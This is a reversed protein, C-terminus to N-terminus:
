ATRRARKIGRVFLYDGLTNRYREMVEVIEGSWIDQELRDLGTQLEADDILRAFSSIGSRVHESLYMAPRDKGSYLFFDQLDASIFFPVTEVIEFSGAQLAYVTDELSPMQDGSRMMMQPFYHNLWYGAMQDPTSTFVVFSAGPLMVRGIESFAEDLDPFHHTALTCVGGHFVEADWPLSQVDAQMWEVAGSKERAERLMRESVDTGCWSGGESSLGVTYNGTGCAIDLYRNDPNLELLRCLIRLIVPDARRTVDYNEGITNYLAAM